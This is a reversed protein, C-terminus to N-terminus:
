RKSKKDLEQSGHTYTVLDDLPICNRGSLGGHIVNACKSYRNRTCPLVVDLVGLSATHFYECLYQYIIPVPLEAMGQGSNREQACMINVVSTWM